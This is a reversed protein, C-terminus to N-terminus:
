CKKNAAKEYISMKYTVKIYRTIKYLPCPMFVECIYSKCVNVNNIFKKVFTLVEFICTKFLNVNPM